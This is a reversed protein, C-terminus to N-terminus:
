VVKLNSEKMRMAVQKAVTKANERGTICVYKMFQAETSHGTIAM